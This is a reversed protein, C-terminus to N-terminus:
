VKVMKGETKPGDMIDAVAQPKRNEVTDNVYPPEPESVTPGMYHGDAKPDELM